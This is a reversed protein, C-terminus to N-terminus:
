ALKKHNKLAGNRLFQPSVGNSVGSISPKFKSIYIYIKLHRTQLHESINNVM